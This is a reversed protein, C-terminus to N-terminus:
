HSRSRSRGRGRNRSHRRGSAGAAAGRDRSRSRGRGRSRSRSRRREGEAGEMMNRRRMRAIREASGTHRRTMRALARAGETPSGPPAAPMVPSGRRTAAARNRRGPSPPRMRDRRQLRQIIEIANSIRKDQSRTPMGYYNRRAANLEAMDRQYRAANPGELLDEESEFPGGYDGEPDVAPVWERGTFIVVTGELPGGRQWTMVDGREPRVRVPGRRWDRTTTPARAAAAKDREYMEDALAGWNLDTELKLLRGAM